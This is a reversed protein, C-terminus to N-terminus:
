WYIYQIHIDTNRCIDWVVHDWIGEEEDPVEREPVVGEDSWGERQYWSKLIM